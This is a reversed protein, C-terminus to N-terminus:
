TFNVIVNKKVYIYMVMIRQYNKMFIFMEVIMKVLIIWELINQLQNQVNILVIIAMNMLILHVIKLANNTM